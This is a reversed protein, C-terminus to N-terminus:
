IGLSLVNTDQSFATENGRKEDIISEKYDIINMRQMDLENLVLGAFGKRKGQILKPKCTFDNNWCEQSFWTSGHKIYEEQVNHYENYNIYMEIGNKVSEYTASGEKIAKLYSQKAKSKKGQKRPYMKWLAEFDDDHQSKKNIKKINITNNITNNILTNSKYFNEELPDRFNEEVGTPLKRRPDRFNEELTSTIHIHREYKDGSQNVEVFIYGKKALQGIWTTISRTSVSYLEAFYENSAWCFGKENALATIEGYLLKANATLEKDYRIHAPIIAYYNPM